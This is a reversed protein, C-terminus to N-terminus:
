RGLVLGGILPIAAGLNVLLCRRAIGNLVIRLPLKIALEVEFREVVLRLEQLLHIVLELRLLGRVGVVAILCSVIVVSLRLVVCFRLRLLVELLHNLKGAVVRGDDELM